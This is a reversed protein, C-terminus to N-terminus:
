GIVKSLYILTKRISSFHTTISYELGNNLIRDIDRYSYGRDYLNVVVPEIEEPVVRPRESKGAQITM